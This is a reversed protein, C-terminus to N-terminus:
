ECILVHVEYNHAWRSPVAIDPLGAPLAQLGSKKAFIIHIDVPGRASRDISSIPLQNRNKSNELILRLTEM